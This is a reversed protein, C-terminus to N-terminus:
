TNSVWFNRFDKLDIAAIDTQGNRTGSYLLINESYFSPQNDYGENNSINKGNEFKLSEDKESIIDFLFIETDPPDQAFVSFSFLILFFCKMLLVKESSILIQDKYYIIPTFGKFFPFSSTIYLLSKM